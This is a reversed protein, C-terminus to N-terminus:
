RAFGGPPTAAPQRSLPPFVHEPPPAMGGALWAAVDFGPCTKLWEHPEVSGDGDVDPSLDRHGVVRAIRPWDARLSTVCRALMDWQRETYRRTGVLCIGISRANHGAVHAGTERLPRGGDVFGDHVIFHYGIHRLMPAYDPAIAMDRRFGRVEHWRDVEATAIRQGDPTASCHIVITDISEPSRRRGM